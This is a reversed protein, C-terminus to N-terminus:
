INARFWRAYDRLGDDLSITSHWGLKGAETMDAHYHLPDGPKIEGNFEITTESGLALRLQELTDAVSVREGGAGNMTEIDGPTEALKTILGAADDVHIWDRSEDGTGWFIASPSGATLKKSADWLLQRRLGPGYVSFFRVTICRLGFAARYSQILTEAMQKHFGYPSVPNSPHTVHLPHDGAAGYVAASSAHIFLVGPCHVRLYELLDATAQVNSRFDAMPQEISRAVSSQGACHVVVDFQERLLALGADSVDGQVWRDYGIDAADATDGHGLGVVRAGSGKFRRAVASGLFGLGGTVLVTLPDNLKRM